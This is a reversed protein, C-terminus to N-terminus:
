RNNRKKRKKRKKNKKKKETTNEGDVANEEDEPLLYRKLLYADIIRRGIPAAVHSGGGSNEAIIAVAIKPDHAPAFAVFLAHDHLHKALRRANYKEKQGIGFVQATGTKGAIEYAAGAGSRKATGFASHMVNIMGQIPANWMKQSKVKVSPLYSVAQIEEPLNKSKRIGRLLRPKLRKGKMSLTSIASVLQLPTSIWYGQGIGINVTDGPYWTANHRKKKWERTPMLGAGESPLDVGTKGGFGFLKMFPAFRDIGLRYALSYFYVDCSQAIAYSMNVSGHGRKNWCRYRHRHGPVQFYGPARVKSAPTVVGHHLGAMSVIPKITSGAPYTGQIARNYLPRDLNNRLANYNKHSIGNVFLNPDYMPVSAMALVEGNRPDMAVVAGRKGQLLTEATIQLNIDISLFLDKGVIPDEQKELKQPKGHADVEIIRYGTKGHLHKEHFKEIGSKGIHTSGKYERKDIRKLDRKDIKGVYGLVHGAIEGLPYYREMQVNIRVGPFRPQNVSFVAMEKETLKSRLVTAQYRNQRWMKQYFKQKEKDSLPILKELRKITDKVKGPVEDRVVALVYESRNDALVKGNRDYIIGRAPPIPISKLYNKRSEETFYEHGEVQLVFLRFLIGALALFVIAAAVLSRSHFLKLEEHESKISERKVM